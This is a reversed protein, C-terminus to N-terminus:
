GRIKVKIRRAKAQETKPLTVRLVGNKYRATARDADVECPLPVTRVFAGYSREAYYYHRGKEEASRRKEGRLVLYDGTVEVTFDDKDLGPLEAVVIVEDDTEELDILPGGGIILSPAWFEEDEPARRRPLWRDLVRHIDDRLRSLAQRWPVPLWQAM